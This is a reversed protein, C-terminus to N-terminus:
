IRFAIKLTPEMMYELVEGAEVNSPTSAEVVAWGTAPTMTIATVVDGSTITGGFSIKLNRIKAPNPMTINLAAITTAPNVILWTTDDAITVTAGSTHTQLKDSSGGGIAKYDGLVSDWIYPVGADKDIYLTDAEGTVPFFTKDTYYLISKGTYALSNWATVADGFKFKGTDKEYGMEGDALIPNSSTWNAATDRRIQIIDAM